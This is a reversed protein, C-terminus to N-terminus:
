APGVDLLHVLFGRREEVPLQSPEPRVVGTGRARVAEAARVTTVDGRVGAIAGTSCGAAVRMPGRTMAARGDFGDDM